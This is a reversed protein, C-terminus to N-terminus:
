VLYVILAGGIPLGFLTRWDGRIVANATDGIVNVVLLTLAM